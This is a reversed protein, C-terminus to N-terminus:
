GHAVEWGGARLDMEMEMHALVTEPRRHAPDQSDLYKAWFYLVRGRRGDPLHTVFVYPEETKDIVSKAM